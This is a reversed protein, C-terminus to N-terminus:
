FKLKNMKKKALWEDRNMNSIWWFFVDEPSDFEPYKGRKMLEAIAQIYIKEAARKFLRYEHAKEKRSSMPCFLCGIRHFGMGYLECAPINNGNLYHWVDRDTWNFVPSLIIKDKGTVCTVVTESSVDFLDFQPKESVLREDKIDFAVGPKGFLEVNNRKARKRSEYKRIGVCTCTGTGAPEKYEACCTRHQRMPLMGKRIIFNKM